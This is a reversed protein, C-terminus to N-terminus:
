EEGYSIWFYIGTNTEDCRSCYYMWASIFGYSRFFDIDNAQM